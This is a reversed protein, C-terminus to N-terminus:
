HLHQWLYWSAVSRYPQWREGITELKPKDVFLLDVSRQLGVDGLALINPRKLGFILFMEATWRGIGPQKILEKIAADDSRDQLSNFDLEGSHVKEALGMVYRSKARSLGATRLDELPVLLLEEPTLNPALKRIRGKITNAAKNSILQSIVSNVLTQFPQFELGAIPCPGHESILKAMIPCSKALQQEAIHTTAPCLQQYQETTM